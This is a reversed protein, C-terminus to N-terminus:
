RVARLEDLAAKADVQDTRWETRARQQVFESLDDIHRSAEQNTLSTVPRRSETEINDIIQVALKTAEDERERRMQTLMHEAGDRFRIVRLARHVAEFATGLSASVLAEPLM